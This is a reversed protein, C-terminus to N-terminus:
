SAPTTSSTSPQRDIPEASRQSPVLRLPRSGACGSCGRRLCRTPTTASRQSSAMPTAVSWYKLEALDAASRREAALRAVTLWLAHSVEWVQQLEHTSMQAVVLGNGGNAALGTAALKRLAERV